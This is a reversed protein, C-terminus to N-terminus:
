AYTGHVQVGAAVAATDTAAVAGTLAWALGTTLRKGNAGFSEIATGGAPVPITLIPVDTGVTPASAKNYFKFFVPSATPNSVSIEFLSGSSTKVSTANTSAAGTTSFASPSSGTAIYTGGILNSGANLGVASPALAASIYQIAITASGSTYASLLLRFYRSGIPGWAIGPVTTTSGIIGSTGGQTLPQSIWLVGDFSSQYSITGVFTGSIGIRLASYQSLDTIGDVTANLAALSGSLTTSSAGITGIANTGAPTAAQVASAIAALSTNATAQNAATAQAANDTHLADLKTNTGVLTADKALLSVDTSSGGGATYPNGNSDVLIVPDPQVYTM